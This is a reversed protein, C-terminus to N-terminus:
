FAYSCVSVVFVIVVLLLLLKTVTAALGAAFRFGFIALVIEAVAFIIALQLADITM